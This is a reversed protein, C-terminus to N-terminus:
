KREKLNPFQSKILDNIEELNNQIDKKTQCYNFNSLYLITEMTSCWVNLNTTTYTSDVLNKNKKIKTKSKIM